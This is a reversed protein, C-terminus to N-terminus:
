VWAPGESWTFGETLKEIRADSAVVDGFRRDFTQLQGIAAFRPTPPTQKTCAALVALLPVALLLYSPLRM